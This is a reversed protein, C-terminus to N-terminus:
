CQQGPDVVKTMRNATMCALVCSPPQNYLACCLVLYAALSKQWSSSRSGAYSAVVPGISKVCSLHGLTPLLEASLM